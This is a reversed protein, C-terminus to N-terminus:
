IKRRGRARRQDHFITGAQIVRSATTEDGTVSLLVNKPGVMKPQEGDMYPDGPNGNVQVSVDTRLGAVEAMRWAKRRSIEMTYRGPGSETM